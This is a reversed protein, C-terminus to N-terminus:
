VENRERVKPHRAEGRGIAERWREGFESGAAVGGSLRTGRREEEMVAGAVEIAEVLIEVACDVEGKLDDEQEAIGLTGEGAAFVNEDFLLGASLGDGMDDPGTEALGDDQRRTVPGGGTGAAKVPGVELVADTGKM